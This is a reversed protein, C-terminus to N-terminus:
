NTSAELGMFEQSDCPWRFGTNMPYKSCKYLFPTALFPPLCVYQSEKKQEHVCEM